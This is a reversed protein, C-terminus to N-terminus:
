GDSEELWRDVRDRTESWVDRWAALTTSGADTVAYYKRPPGADSPRVTSSLLGQAELSRLVPYLAGLKVSDGARESFRRAIEYGYMPEDAGDLMSLLVLAVTGSNLEKRLKRVARETM